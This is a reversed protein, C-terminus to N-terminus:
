IHSIFFLLLMYSIDHYYNWTFLYRSYWDMVDGDSNDSDCWKEDNGCENNDNDNVYTNDNNADKSMKSSESTSIPVYSWKNKTCYFLFGRSQSLRFGRFLSDEFRRSSWFSLLRDKRGQRLDWLLVFLFCFHSSALLGIRSIVSSCRFSLSCSLETTTSLM